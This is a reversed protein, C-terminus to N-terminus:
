GNRMGYGGPRITAGAMRWLSTNIRHRKIMSDELVVHALHTVQGGFSLRSRTGASELGLPPKGFDRRWQRDYGRLIARSWLVLAM